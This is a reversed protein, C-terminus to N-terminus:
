DLRGYNVKIDVAGANALLTRVIPLPERWSWEGQYPTQSAMRYRTGKYLFEIYEGITCAGKDGVKKALDYWTTMVNEIVHDPADDPRYLWVLKEKPFYTYEVDEIDDGDWVFECHCSDCCELSLGYGELIQELKEYAKYRNYGNICEYMQGDYAMGMIFKESYWESYKHPDVNKVTKRTYRYNGNDDKVLPHDFMKGNYFLLWDYGLQNASAWKKVDKALQEINAKTLKM